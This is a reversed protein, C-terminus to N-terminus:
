IYVYIDDKFNWFQQFSKIVVLSTHNGPLLRGVVCMRMGFRQPNYLLSTSTAVSSLFKFM